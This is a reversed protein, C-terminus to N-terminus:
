SMVAKAQRHRARWFPAEPWRRELGYLHDRERQYDEFRSEVGARYGALDEARGDLWAAVARAVDLGDALAKHIGQSSLPDFASAADGVAAWGDGACPELLTSPAAHVHVGSADLAAGRLAGAVHVTRSLQDLWGDATHLARRGLDGPDAAVVASARQGPVRAAYWWGYEVAELVTMRNLSSREPLSLLAAACALRHHVRRRAGLMRAVHAGQGTADVVFRTVLQGGDDTHLTVPGGPEATVRAIRAPRRLRAGCAVAHRRLCADFRGRDLHWASGHPNCVFDNHGPVDSGWSSASGLCRDHEDAVFAPWAGLRELLLGTEPPISEGVLPRRPSPGQDVLAVITVGARRLAAAAAAGAPGAGVVAVDFRDGLTM